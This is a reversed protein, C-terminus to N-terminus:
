SHTERQLLEVNQFSRRWSKPAGSTAKKPSGEWTSHLRQAWISKWAGKGMCLVCILNWILVACNIFPKWGAPACHRPCLPCFFFWCFYVFLTLSRSYQLVLNGRLHSNWCLCEASVTLSIPLPHVHEEIHWNVHTIITFINVKRKKYKVSYFTTIITRGATWAYVSCVSFVGTQPTKTPGLNNRKSKNGYVMTSAKERRLDPLM